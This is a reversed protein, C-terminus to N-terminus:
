QFHTVTPPLASWPIDLRIDYAWLSKLAPLSSLGKITHLSRFLERVAGPHTESRKLAQEVSQLNASALTLHEGAEVLFGSLFSSLDVETTM